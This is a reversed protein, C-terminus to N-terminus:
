GFFYATATSSVNPPPYFWITNDVPLGWTNIDANNSISTDIQINCSPTQFIYHMKGTSNNKITVIAFKFIFPPTLGQCPVSSGMTYNVTQTNYNTGGLSAITASGVLGFISRGSIINEPVFNTDPQTIWIDGDICQRANALGPRLYIRPLGDPDYSGYTCGSAAIHNTDSILGPNVPINGAIKIGNVYASAGSLIQAATALADATDVVSAKGSIGNITVGSKINGTVLNTLDLTGVIQGSDVTAKKGLIIQAATADGGGGKGLVIFNTGNYCLHYPLGAKLGGSTIANGLTDLITKAGLGNINLTSAGTSATGIKIRVTLGDTYATIKSNTATYTNTGSTTGCYYIRDQTIDSLDTVKALEINTTGNGVYFQNTDTTFAPEGVSLTPLNAVVGRKVQIKNSM